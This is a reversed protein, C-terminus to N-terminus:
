KQIPSPLASPPIPHYQHEPTIVRANPSVNGQPVITTLTEPEKIM